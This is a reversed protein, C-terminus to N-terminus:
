AKGCKIWTKMYTMAMLTSLAVQLLICEQWSTYLHRYNLESFILFKFKYIIIKENFNKM